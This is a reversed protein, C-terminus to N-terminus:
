YRWVHADLGWAVTEGPSYAMLSFIYKLNGGYIKIREKNREVCGL